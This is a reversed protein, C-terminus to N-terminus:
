ASEGEVFTVSDRMVKPILSVLLHAMATRKVSISESDGDEHESSSSKVAASLQSMKSKETSASTSCCSGIEM